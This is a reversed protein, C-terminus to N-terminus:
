FLTATINFTLAHLEKLLWYSLACFMIWLPGDEKSRMALLVSVFAGALVAPNNSAGLIAAALAFFTVQLSARGSIYSVASVQHPHVAFLLAASGALSPAFFLRVFLYVLTINALHLAVNVAHWARPSFEFFKWTLLYGLHTLARPEQMFNNLAQAAWFLRRNAGLPVHSACLMSEISAPPSTRNRPDNWEIRGRVVEWRRPFDFDWLAPDDFLFDGDISRYYIALSAAWAALLFIM